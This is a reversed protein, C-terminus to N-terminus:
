AYPRNRQILDDFILTIRNIYNLSLCVFRIVIILHGREPLNAYRLTKFPCRFRKPM